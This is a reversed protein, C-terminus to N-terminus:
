QKEQQKRIEEDLAAIKDKQLELDDKLKEIKRKIDALLGSGSKSTSNLFGLNNEYTQIESKMNEYARFLREREKLLNNGGEQAHEKISDKFRNLRKKGNRGNLKKYIDNVFGKYEEYIKDKEKFPVHGTENWEKTLAHLTEQLDDVEETALTRLKEIIGKKKKLNDHEENHISSTAKEKQEFFYDCASVFRKWIADSEKKAVPGIAKWEKQLRIM